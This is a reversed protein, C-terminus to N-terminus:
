RALRRTRVASNPGTELLLIGGDPLTLGNVATWDGDSRAVVDVAGRPSVRKVVGGGPVAVYVSADHGLWIGGVDHDPLNSGRFLDIVFGVVRVYLPVASSESLNRALVRAAGRADFQYLVGDAVGYVSGNAATLWGPRGHPVVGVRVPKGAGIRKRIVNSDPAIDAWYMTGTEDHVFHFDDYDDLFGARPRIITDVVGTPLRRWVYHGWTENSGTYLHEGYLTDGASMFLEHSHVNAVAITRRGDPTQKWVSSLDTYYLNGKSDRVIGIGPHARASAPTGCLALTCGLLALRTWRRPVGLLLITM